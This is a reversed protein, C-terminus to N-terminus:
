RSVMADGNMICQLCLLEAVFGRYMNM